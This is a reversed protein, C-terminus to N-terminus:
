HNFLSNQMFLFSQCEHTLGGIKTHVVAIIGQICRSDVWDEYAALYLDILFLAESYFWGHM